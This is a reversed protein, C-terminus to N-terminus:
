KTDRGVVEEEDPPMILMLTRGSDWTVDVQYWDSGVLHQKRIATIVGTSGIPIPDPDEPMAVLRIRDGPKPLQM